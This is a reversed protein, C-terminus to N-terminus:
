QLYFSQTLAQYAILMGISLNGNMVRFGGVVLIATTALSTLLSPISSLVQSPLSLEQQANVMKSYYGAFKSFLDSELGAAKVTEITMIGGIAVGAVKGSEQALRANADLRTRALYRLAVFNIAAFFIVMITLVWDYLFMILAYFVIMVTDIITTALQGSLINAVKQNLQSRNSIEGAYRQAYFGIPLRLTHWLFQGSMSISLKLMLRRLYTLRLRALVGILIVAFLMVLLLPKLWDQRGEVIM